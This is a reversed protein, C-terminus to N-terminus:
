GRNVKNEKQLEKYKLWARESIGSHAGKCYNLGEWGREKQLGQAHETANEHSM